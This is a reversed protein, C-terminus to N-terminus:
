IRDGGNDVKSRKTNGEDDSSSYGSSASASEFSSSSSDGHSEDTTYDDDDDTLDSDADAGSDSSVSDLDSSAEEESEKGFDDTALGAEPLKLEPNALLATRSPRPRYTRGNPCDYTWHGAQLCKQCKANANPNLPTSSSKPRLMQSKLLAGAM